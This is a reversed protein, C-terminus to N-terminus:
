TNEKAASPAEQVAPIVYSRIKVSDVTETQVRPEPNRRHDFVVYYGESVGEMKLYAALQKKGAQYRTDGRWIKTEVIYKQQNHIILLDMKGAGTPVEFTMVGDVTKVFSDLYTLLLHRGVYEQPTEPVQLIKFGVRTIFDQFNDLLPDMDLHGTPTLYNRFGKSVYHQDPRVTGQTEFTRM